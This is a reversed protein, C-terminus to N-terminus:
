FWIPRRTGHAASMVPDALARAEALAEFVKKMEPRRAADADKDKNVKLYLEKGGIATMLVTLMGNVQWGDGTALPVINKEKLKPGRCRSRELEETTRCRCGPLVASQDVDMGVFPYEASRM